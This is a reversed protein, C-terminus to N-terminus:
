EVEGSAGDYNLRHWRVFEVEADKPTACWVPNKLTLGFRDKAAEPPEGVLVMSAHQTLKRTLVRDEFKTHIVLVSLPGVILYSRRIPEQPLYAFEDFTVISTTSGRQTTKKEGGAYPLTSCVCVDYRQGCIKCCYHSM